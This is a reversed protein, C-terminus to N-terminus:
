KALKKVAEFVTNIDKRTSDIGGYLYFGDFKMGCFEVITQKWIKKNARRIGNLCYIFGPTGSTTIVKVHRGQLMGVPRGKENYKAAFGITFVSDIWNKLIGPITGWWFPYIIVIEEAEKIKHQYYTITENKPIDSSNEFTLYPLQKDRYLDIVEVTDGQAEKEAQYIEAMKKTLNRSSPHATVILLKSM